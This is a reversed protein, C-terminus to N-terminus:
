QPKMKQRKGSKQEKEEDPTNPNPIQKSFISRKPAAARTANTPQPEEKSELSSSTPKPQYYNKQFLKLHNYFRELSEKVDEPTLLDPDLARSICGKNKSPLITIEDKSFDKGFNVKSADYQHFSNNLWDYFNKGEWIVKAETLRIFDKYSFNKYPEIVLEKLNGRNVGYVKWDDNARMPPIICTENNEDTCVNVSIKRGSSNLIHALQYGYAKMSASPDVDSVIFNVTKVSEPLGCEILLKALLTPSNSNQFSGDGSLDIITVSDDSISSIDTLAFHGIKEPRIYNLACAASLDIESTGVLLIM